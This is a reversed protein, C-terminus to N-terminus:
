EALRCVNIHGLEPTSLPRFPFERIAISELRNLPRELVFRTSNRQDLLDFPRHSVDFSMGFLSNEDLLSGFCPSAM